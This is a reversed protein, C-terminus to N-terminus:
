EGAALGYCSVEALVTEPPHLEGSVCKPLLNIDACDAPRKAAQERYFVQIAPGSKLTMNCAYFQGDQYELKPGVDVGSIRVGVTGVLCNVLVPREGNARAVWSISFGYATPPMAGVTQVQARGAAVDEQSGNVYFPRGGGNPNTAPDVLVAWNYCPLAHYTTLEWTKIPTSLDPGIVDAFLKFDTSRSISSDALGGAPTATAPASIPLLTALSAPLYRGVHM